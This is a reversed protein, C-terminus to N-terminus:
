KNCDDRSITRVQNIVVTIQGKNAETFHIVAESNAPCNVIIKTSVPENNKLSKVLDFLAGIFAILATADKAYGSIEHFQEPSIWVKKLPEELSVNDPKIDWVSYILQRDSSQLTVSFNMVVLRLTDRLGM